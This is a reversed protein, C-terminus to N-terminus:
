RCRRRGNPPHHAIPALFPRAARGGDGQRVGLEGSGVPAPLIEPLQASTHDLRHVLVVASVVHPQKRHISPPPPLPTCGCRVSRNPKSGLCFCPCICPGLCFHQQSHLAPPDHRTDLEALVVVFATTSSATPNAAKAAKAAEPAVVVGEVWSLHAVHARPRAVPHGAVTGSGSSRSRGGGTGTGTGTGAGLYPCRRLDAQQRDGTPQM